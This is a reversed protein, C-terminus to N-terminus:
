VAEGSEAMLPPTSLKKLGLNRAISIAEELQALRAERSLKLQVRIAKLEGRPQARKIADADELLTISTEEGAQYESEAAALKSDIESLSNALIVQLDNALQRQEREIAYDVFYKLVRAGDIGKEYRMRLGIYASVLNSNKPDPQVLPLINQYFDEFGQELSEGESQYAAILDPRSRYFDLRTNYSDLAAGVATLATKPPLSYIQSRNLADLQNLAVPRLMASVEYVPTAIFAYAAGLLACLGSVGLIFGRRHCVKGTLKFLDIEGTEALSPDRTVSSM